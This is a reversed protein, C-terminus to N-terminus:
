PFIAFLATLTGAELALGTLSLEPPYLM